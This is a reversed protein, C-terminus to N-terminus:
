WVDKNKLLKRDDAKPVMFTPNYSIKGSGNCIKCGIVEKGQCYYCFSKRFLIEHLPIKGDGKCRPYTIKGTGGCSRCTYEM